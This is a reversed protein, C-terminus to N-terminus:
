KLIFAKNKISKYELKFFDNSKKGVYRLVVERGESRITYNKTKGCFCAPSLAKNKLFKINLGSGPQCVFSLKSRAKKIIIEVTQNEKARLIYHCDHIGKMKLIKVRKSAKRIKKGCKKHSNKVFKCFPPEYFTPCKCEDCKKPNPYGGFYCKPKKTDECRESCYHKNLLKVDLFIFYTSQGISFFYHKNKTEITINSGSDEKHAADRAYHLISGYDYKIKYTETSFPPAFNFNDLYKEPINTKNIIIYDDRESREHEHFLGLAHLIEHLAVGLLEPKKLFKLKVPKTTSFTGVSDVRYFDDSEVFELGTENLQEDEQFTICSEYEVLKLAEKVFTENLEKNIKYKIPFTKFKGQGFLYTARRKRSLISDKKIFNSNLKVSQIFILISVLVILIDILYKIKNQCM